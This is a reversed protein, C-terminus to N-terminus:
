LSASKWTRRQSFRGKARWFKLVAAKVVRSCENKAKEFTGAVSSGFYSPREEEGVRHFFSRANSIFVLLICVLLM